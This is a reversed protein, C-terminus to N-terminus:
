RPLSSRMSESVTKPTSAESIVSTFRAFGRHGMGFAGEISNLTWDAAAVSASM